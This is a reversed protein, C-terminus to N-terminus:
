DASGVSEFFARLEAELEREQGWWFHDAGEIIRLRPRAPLAAALSELADAPSIHDASGSVLLVPGAYRRVGAEAGIMSPPAAVLALGAAADDVAVAAMGAGFSYGALVTRSVGELGSAHALAARVDDAEGRGGDFSGESNGAGRFNFALARCGCDLAARVIVEVVNNYMDGGYQPHPHCVVVCTDPQVEEPSFAIGELRLQGSNFRIATQSL